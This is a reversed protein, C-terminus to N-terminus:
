TGLTDTILNGNADYTFRRGATSLQRNAADYTCTETHGQGNRPNISNSNVVSSRRRLTECSNIWKQAYSM